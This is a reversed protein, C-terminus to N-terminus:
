FKGGGLTASLKVSITPDKDFGNWTFSPGASFSMNKLGSYSVNANAMLTENPINYLGFVNANVNKIGLKSFALTGALNSGNRFALKVAPTTEALKKMAESLEAGDYYYQAMLTIGPDNFMMMAGVTGKWIIDDDFEAYGEAFFSGYDTCPGTLTAMAIPSREYKYWGGLGLEVAGFVLETKAALATNRILSTDSGKATLTIPGLVRDISTEPIAYVYLINQHPLTGTLKLALPGDVQATPDEPDITSLNVINSAPSFFYGVGWTITQKGFRASINGTIDFDTFLEKIYFGNYTTTYYDTGPPTPAEPLEPPNPILVPTPLPTDTNLSLMYATYQEQFDRLKSVYETYDEGYKELDKLYIEMEKQYEQIAILDSSQTTQQADGATVYPYNIGGKMYMRTSDTPRADIYLQANANVTLTTNYMADKFTIDKGFGTSTSAGTSWNGGIKISGAEFITTAQSANLTTSTLDVIGDDGFFDDDGGFLDDDSGFLDSDDGWSSEFGTDWDTDWDDDEATVPSILLAALLTAGVLKRLTKTMM